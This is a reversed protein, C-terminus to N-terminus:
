DRGPNLHLNACMKLYDKWYEFWTEADMFLVPKGNNRKAIIMWDMEPETNHMAQDKWAHVDWKECNKAEVSFPFDKRVEGMLRIDPGSQGMPRSEIEKDTGVPYGTAEGIKRAVWQQLRRGKAKGSSTKM